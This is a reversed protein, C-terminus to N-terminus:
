TDIDMFISEMIFDLDPTSEGLLDRLAAANKDQKERIENDKKRDNNLEDTKKNLNKMREEHNKHYDDAASEDMVADIERSTNADILDDDDLEIDEENNITDLDEITCGALALLKEMEPDNSIESHDENLKKKFEKKKAQLGKIYNEKVWEIHKEVKEPTVGNDLRKQILKVNVYRSPNGEKVARLNKVLQKDQSIALYGDKILCECDAVSKCQEIAAMLWEHNPNFDGNTYGNVKPYPKKHMRATLKMDNWWTQKAKKDNGVDNGVKKFEKSTTDFMSNVPGKFAKDIVSDKSAAEPLPKGTKNYSDLDAKAEAHTDYQTQVRGMSDFIAYHDRYQGIYYESM